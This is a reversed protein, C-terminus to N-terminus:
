HSDGDHDVDGAKASASQAKPSLTVTDQPLQASKSPATSAAPQSAESAQTNSVSSIPNIM